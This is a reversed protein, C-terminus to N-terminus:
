VQVCRYYCGAKFNQDDLNAQSLSETNWTPSWGGFDYLAQGLSCWSALDLYWNDIWITFNLFQDSTAFNTCCGLQISTHVRSDGEWQLSEVFIWHLLTRIYITSVGLTFGPSGNFMDQFKGSFKFLIWWGPKSADPYFISTLSNTVRAKLAKRLISM